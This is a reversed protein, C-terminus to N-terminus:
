PLIWVNENCKWGKEALFSVAEDTNHYFGIIVAEIHLCDIEESKIVPVGLYKGEKSKDIFAVVTVGIHLCALLNYAQQGLKGAGWICIRKGQLRPMLMSYYLARKKYLEGGTMRDLLREAKRTESVMKRIDTHLEAHTGRGAIYRYYAEMQDRIIDPAFHHEWLERANEHILNIQGSQYAQFTRVLVEEIDHVEYGGSILSNQGDRFLEPVGAVPTSVITLDYTLAEVISSPFSEDTSACLLCDCGALLERIDSVFGIMRATQELKREEIYKRCLEGYPNECDGAIILEIDYNKKCNEAARVATLQNKRECVSGLMLVKLGTRRYDEKREAQRAPAAPRICRSEIGLGKRWMGSYLESDCLHYHAFIDGACLRFEEKRLQYINMLHPIGLERSVLEVAVNLQVTHFFDIKHRIAMERIKEVCGLARLLDVNYFNYSTPFELSETELDLRRCRKEYEPNPTGREDCPIVVLVGHVESMLKAQQILM